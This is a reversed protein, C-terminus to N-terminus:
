TRGGVRPFLLRALAHPLRRRCHGRGAHGPRRGGRDAPRLLGRAPHWADRGGRADELLRADVFGLRRRRVDHGDNGLHLPRLLANAAADPLRELAPRPRPGSRCTRGGRAAARADVVVRAGLSARPHRGRLIGVALEAAGPQARGHIRGARLGPRQRRPHGHLVLVASARAQGPSLFRRHHDAGGPRLGGRRRGGPLADLPAHCLHRGTRQRRQGPEVARHRHRDAALAVVARGALRVVARRGHLLGPLRHLAAGDKGPRASRRAPRCSALRSPNGARRGGLGPPRHLQVPEDLAAVLARGLGPFGRIRGAPQRSPPWLGAM